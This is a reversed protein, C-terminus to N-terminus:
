CGQDSTIVNNNTKIHRCSNSPTNAEGEWRSGDYEGSRRTAGPYKDCVVSPMNTCSSSPVPTNTPNPNGGPVSTPTPNVPVSGGVTGILYNNLLSYANSSHNGGGGGKTQFMTTGDKGCQNIIMSVGGPHKSIYSTVNYVKGSIILWCNQLTNHSAVEASTLTLNSVPQSTPLVVPTTTPNSVNVIQATTPNVAVSAGLNGILYNSLLNYANNSHNGGGGGKTQYMTTGDKGCSNLIMQAGGPHQSIYSTVNYVKGSIILWCNQLTNHSAVEASTLTVGTNNNVVTLNNQNPVNTATIKAQSTPMVTVGPSSSVLKQGLDGVFYQSLLDHAMKSHDVAVSKEKSAFAATGDYGCYKVIIPKGGPHSILYSTVNYVKSVIILWCDYETNHKGVEDVTLDIGNQLAATATNNTLDKNDNTLTKVVLHAKYDIYGAALLSGVTIFFLVLSIGVFLKVKLM